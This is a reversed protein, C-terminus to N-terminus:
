YIRTIDNKKTERCRGGPKAEKALPFHELNGQKRKRKM